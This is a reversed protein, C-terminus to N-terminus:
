FPLSLSVTTESCPLSATTAIRAGPLKKPPVNPLFAAHDDLDSWPGKNLNFYHLRAVGLPTADKELKARLAANGSWLQTIFIDDIVRAADILKQLAKQDGPALQSPDARIEAPAFRAIMRNLEALDPIAALVTMSLLTAAFFRNM